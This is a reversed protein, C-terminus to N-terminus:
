KAELTIAIPGATAGRQVYVLQDVFQNRFGLDVITPEEFYSGVDDDDVPEVRLVYPGPSLGTILADGSELVFGAVMVGSVPNFAMVHVGFADRGEFEVHARISGTSTRHDAEPYIDAAGAVDDARLQRGATTGPDFAFPFMVAESAALRADDDTAEFYGLASHDLGLMHGLEHLAISEVDYRGEEGDGAVSWGVTSNLFMDSEVVEGTVSDFISATVGLVGELDPRALFGITNRGDLALPRASTRGQYEFTMNSGGAAQWAATARQLATELADVSVGEVPQDSVVYPIRAGAWSVFVRGSSNLFSQRLYAEGSQLGTVAFLLTALVRVISQRSM